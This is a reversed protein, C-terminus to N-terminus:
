NKGITTFPEEDEGGLTCNGIYSGFSSYPHETPRRCIRSGDTNVGFSGDIVRIDPFRSPRISQAKLVM